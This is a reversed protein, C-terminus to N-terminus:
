RWCGSKRIGTKQDVVPQFMM